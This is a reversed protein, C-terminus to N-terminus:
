INVEVEQVRSIFGEEDFDGPDEVEEPKDEGSEESWEELASEYDHFANELEEHNDKETEWESIIEEIEEAATNCAEARQELLQGTDGQQLGEPMNDFSGQAEEGIGRITDALDQANEMTSLAAKADEWDYLGSLFTSSTLQSRKFPALQRMVRSSRPGTKIKVYWYETGKPIGPYDKAAKRKEPRAM